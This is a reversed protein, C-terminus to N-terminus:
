RPGTPVLLGRPVTLGQPSDERLRWPTGVAAADAAEGTAAVDQAAAPRWGLSPRVSICIQASYSEPSQQLAATYRFARSLVDQWLWRSSTFDVQFIRLKTCYNRLLPRDQM